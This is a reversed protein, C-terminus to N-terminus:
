GRHRGPVGVPLEGLGELAELRAASRLVEVSGHLPRDREPWDNHHGVHILTRGAGVKQESLVRRHKARVTPHGAFDLLHQAIWAVVDEVAQDERCRNTIAIERRILDDRDMLAADINGDGRGLRALQRKRRRVPADLVVYCGVPPRPHLHHVPQVILQSVKDVRSVSPEVRCALTQRLVLLRELQGALIGPERELGTDASGVQRAGIVATKDVKVV